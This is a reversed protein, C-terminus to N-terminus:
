RSTVIGLSYRYVRNNDENEQVRTLVCFHCRTSIFVIDCIIGVYVLRPFFNLGLNQMEGKLQTTEVFRCHSFFIDM